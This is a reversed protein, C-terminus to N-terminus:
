RVAPVMTSLSLRAGAVTVVVGYRGARLRRPLLITVTRTGTGKLRVTRTLATRGLRKLTLRLITPRCATTRVRLRRVGQRSRIGGFGLATACAAKAGLGNQMLLEPSPTTVPLAAFTTTFSWTRAVERPIGDDGTVQLRIAATYTAGAALPARPLLQAGAPLYPGVQPSSRDFTVIDVAGAPGTLSAARVKTNSTWRLGPGSAMVYLTPGTRTGPPIGATAGPTLAGEDDVESTRWNKTGDGPYTFLTDAAEPPRGISAMTTACGYGQTEYAGVRDLFPSLLQHLHIPALEFPNATASWTDSRYLVAKGAADDGEATYGPKAPDEDHVLQGNTAGYRDHKACAESLAPDEFIGDPIGHAARQANLFSVIQPGTVDAVAPSPAVSIAGLLLGLLLLRPRLTTDLM